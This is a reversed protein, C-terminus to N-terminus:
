RSTKPDGGIVKFTEGVWTLRWSNHRRGWHTGPVGVVKSPGILKELYRLPPVWRGCSLPDDVDGGWRIVRCWFNFSLVKKEIGRKKRIKGYGTQM